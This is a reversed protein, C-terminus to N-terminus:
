RSFHSYCSDLTEDAFYKLNDADLHFFTVTVSDGLPVYEKLLRITEILTAPTVEEKKIRDGQRLYIDDLEIDRNVTYWMPRISDLAGHLESANKKVLGSFEGNQYVLMWSFVPLAIDLPVDYKKSPRLYPELEETNLISNKNENQLPNILNYCMLTARDVPPVGMVDSYKYPYLRLTCTITKHSIKKLSRLLYFYNDRTSKTWDCDVQIERFFQGTHINKNFYKSILFNMNDALTDLENPNLKTLVDNRVFVTPVIELTRMNAHYPLYKEATNEDDWVNLDTKAVPIAGFVPDPEVEFFKVYLKRVDLYKIHDLEQEDLSYENSKWYYFGRTVLPKNNKVCGSGVFLLLICLNVSLIRKM